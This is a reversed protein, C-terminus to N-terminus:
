RTRGSLADVPDLGVARKAPLWGFVVGTVIALVFASAAAWIPPSAPFTPFRWVLLRIAGWGAALGVVGGAAALLGAETVFVALIQRREAGLAKLLGVESRRESVSVLMVNMIGIGAVALSIAAIGAVGATLAALIGQLSELMAEPTTVTVDEEGHRDIIRDTVRRTVRAMDAGPRAQVAIRSLSSLDFMQMSTAVTVFVLEDMDIGFQMGQPSLTGIVRLRWGGVRITRGLASEGPFLERALTSGIVAVPSSVDAPLEPLFSGTRLEVDRLLPYEHTTGLVAANRGLGEGSVLDSGIVIPVAREVGPVTRALAEADDLTLDNPTGGIGPVAGTTEVKGPVVGLVRADLTDFQGSVFDRAGEGLATLIVVAAVGIALGLLSLTTRRRHRTLAGGALVLVDVKRM